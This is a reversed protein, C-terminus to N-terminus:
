AVIAALLPLGHQSKGLIIASLVASKGSGNRGSIFNMNPGFEFEALRFVIPSGLDTSEISRCYKHSM